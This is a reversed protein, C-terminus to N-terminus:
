IGASGMKLGCDLVKSGDVGVMPPTYLEVRVKVQASLPSPHGIGRGPRKVMPFCVRYGNYLLSRSGWPRDPRTRYIEGEM